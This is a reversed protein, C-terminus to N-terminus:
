LYLFLFWDTKTPLLLIVFPIVLFCRVLILYVWCYPICFLWIFSFFKWWCSRLIVNWTDATLCIYHMFYVTFHNHNFNFTFSLYLSLYSRLHLLVIQNEGYILGRRRRGNINCTCSSQAFHYAWINFQLCLLLVYAICVMYPMALCTCVFPTVQEWEKAM